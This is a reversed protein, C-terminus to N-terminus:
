QSCLFKWLPIFQVAIGECVEKKEVDKTVVMLKKLKLRKVAHVNNRIDLEGYKVEIPMKDHLIDIEFYERWFYTADNSSSLCVIDAFFLLILSFTLNSVSFSTSIM